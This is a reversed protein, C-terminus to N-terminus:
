NNQNGFAGMGYLSRAIFFQSSHYWKAIDRGLM